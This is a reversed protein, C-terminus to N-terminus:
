LHHHQIILVLLSHAHSIPNRIARSLCARHFSGRILGDDMYPNLFLPSNKPQVLHKHTLAVIENPFMTSQTTKLWYRKANQIEEPLLYTAQLNKSRRFGNLFPYLYAITRLLKPWSSYRSALNWNPTAHLTCVPPESRQELPVGFPVLEVGFPVLVRSSSAVMIPRIVIYMHRSFIPLSVTLCAIRPISTRRFM